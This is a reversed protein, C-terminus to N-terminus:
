VVAAFVCTFEGLIALKGFSVFAQNSAILLSGYGTVTTLSALMVAGGTERLVGIIGKGKEHRYRQFINVGYDVGIGFTIPLAIFNLFNIKVHFGLIFGFMWLVGILLAFACQSITVVNRFIIVVLFFVALFAFLTAKPGDRVISEFMDSTVPLTGAVAAGPEIKDAADRISHVFHILQESKSLDPSLSPEILVLKGLTGDRERFKSKVLEPLDKEAFPKFSQDSLLEEAIKREHPDLRSMLKAPLMRKVEHLTYIKKEQSQPVFDDITSVNVIYSQKGESAKVKRIEEAIPAVHEKKKPLVVVPSLYHQFVNDVYSSWYMSGNEQSHKNRLKKFDTEIISSDLRSFSLISAVSLVLTLVLIPKPYHEVIYAIVGVLYSKPRSIAKKLFGMRYFLVLLSPLITYSTIWCIIMGVFGIIGFQRFGRFSTLMLSGYALGAALAAVITARMTKQVAIAVARPTAKDKRREELFRALFIIGFNIGNGLVISGMFASNANLYGVLFYSIGFTIATGLFLSTLLATTALGSRFYLLMATMVLGVVVLTSKALDEVLADHEEIMDQVVGSFHIKIDPAYSEPHLDELIKDIAKRLIPGGTMGSATGPLNVLMIRLKEDPSAYYGGPFHSYDDAKSTYKNQLAKLDLKPEPIEKNEFITLPNYLSIEYQIRDHIFRQVDKLDNEEIFLSKRENFFDLEEKIKYEVGAAINPPIKLIGAALDDVFRKSEATHDSFILISLSSTSELRARVEGLDIVSRADTPLLEELDTKLNLFLKVSFCGGLGGLLFGMVVVWGAHSILFRTIKNVENGLRESHGRLEM